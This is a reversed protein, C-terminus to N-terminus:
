VRVDNEEEEYGFPNRVVDDWAGDAGKVGGDRKSNGNRFSDNKQPETMEIM